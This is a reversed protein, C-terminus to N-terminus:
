KSHQWTCFYKHYVTAGHYILESAWCGLFYHQSKYAHMAHIFWFSRLAVYIRSPNTNAIICCSDCQWPMTSCTNMYTYCRTVHNNFAGTSYCASASLCRRLAIEEYEKWDHWGTQEGAQVIIRYTVPMRVACKNCTHQWYGRRMNFIPRASCATTINHSNHRCTM